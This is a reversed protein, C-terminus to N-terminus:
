NISFLTPIFCYSQTVNDRCQGCKCVKVCIDCCKCGKNFTSHTTNEFDRFLHDRRCSVRNQIYSKMHDDCNELLKKSHIIVAYSDIGERGSRGVQQVYTECDAPVGYHIVLRDDQCNIEMGFADTCIIVRLCSQKTVNDIIKKKVFSSTGKFFMDVLRCEAISPSAGPPHTFDRGLGAKFFTYLKSCDTKIKCFIMVRPMLTLKEKLEDLVLKFVSSVGFNNVGMLQVASFRLNPKDPSRVIAIPSRMGLMEEVKLRLSRTATATLAMIGIRSEMLSRVEKLRSFAERFSM